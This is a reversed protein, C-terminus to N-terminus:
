EPFIDKLDVGVFEAIKKIFAVKEEMECDPEGNAIDQRRAEQLAEKMEEVEKKLREFEQRSPGTQVFGGTVPRPPYYVTDDVWPFDQPITKRYSNGINSVVCM